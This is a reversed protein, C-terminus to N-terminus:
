SRIVREEKEQVVENRENAASSLRDLRVYKNQQRFFIALTSDTGPIMSCQAGIDKKESRWIIIGNDNM